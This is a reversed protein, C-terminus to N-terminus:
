KMRRYGVGYRARKSPPGSTTKDLAPIDEQTLEPPKNGKSSAAESIDPSVQQNQLKPPAGFSHHFPLNAGPSKSLSVTERDGLEREEDKSSSHRTSSNPKMPIPTLTVDPKIDPPALKATHGHSHRGSGHSSPGTPTISSTPGDLGSTLSSSSHDFKSGPSNTIPRDLAATVVEKLQITSFDKKNCFGPKAAGKEELRELKVTLNDEVRATPHDSDPTTNKGHGHGKGKVDTKNSDDTTM